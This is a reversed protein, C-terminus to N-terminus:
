ATLSQKENDSGRKIASRDDAHTANRKKYKNKQWSCRVVLVGERGVCAVNAGVSSGVPRPRM